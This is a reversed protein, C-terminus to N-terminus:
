SAMAGAETLAEDVFALMRAEFRDKGFAERASRWANARLGRYLEREDLLRRMAAAVEVADTPRDLLWGTKGHQVLEPIAFARSAIAPCGFLAAEILM